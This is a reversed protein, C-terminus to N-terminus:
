RTREWQRGLLSVRGAFFTWLGTLLLMVICWLAEQSASFANVDLQWARAWAHDDRVLLRVVFLLAYTATLALGFAATTLLSASSPWWTMYLAFVIQLFGALLLGLAWTPMGTTVLSQWTPLTPIAGLLAIVVFGSAMSRTVRVWVRSPRESRSGPRFFRAPSTQIPPPEPTSNM